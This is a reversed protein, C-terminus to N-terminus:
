NLTITQKGVSYGKNFIEIQYDGKEFKTDRWEMVVKPADNNYNFAKFVTFRVETGVNDKFTGSGKSEVFLTEGRPNIIRGIFYNEGPKTVKNEIVDFEIKIKECNKAKKVWDEKGKREWMPTVKLNNSKLVSGIDVKKQLDAKEEEIKKRAEEGQAISSKNTEVETKLSTIEGTKKEVDTKLIGNEEQLKKVEAMYGEVQSQMDRMKAEIAATAKKDNGSRKIMGAIENKARALESKRQEIQKNLEASTGKQAELEKMADDYQHTLEKNLSDSKTLAFEQKEITQTQQSKNYLLYVNLGTMGLLAVGLIAALLGRKSNEKEEKNNTQFSDNAMSKQNFKFIIQLVSASCFYNFFSIIYIKCDFFKFKKIM